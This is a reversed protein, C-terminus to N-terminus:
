GNLVIKNRKKSNKNLLKLETLTLWESKFSSDSADFWERGYNIRNDENITIGMVTKVIRDEESILIKDGIALPLKKGNISVEKREIQFKSFDVFENDNKSM